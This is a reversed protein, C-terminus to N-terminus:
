SGKMFREGAVVGDTVGKIVNAFWVQKDPTGLVEGMGEEGEGKGGVLWREDLSGLCIEMM